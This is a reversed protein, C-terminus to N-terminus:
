LSRVIDALLSSIKNDEFLTYFADELNSVEVAIEEKADKEALNEDQIIDERVVVSGVGVDVTDRDYCIFYTGENDYDKDETLLDQAKGEVLPKLKEQLATTFDTLKEELTKKDM